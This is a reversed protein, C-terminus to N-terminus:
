RRIRKSAVLAISQKVLKRLVTLDVDALKKIYLCSKATKYKGLDKMLEPFKDAGGPLYLTLNDKRPSFGIIMWEGERGGSYEYRRLGFGVINSGWMKPAEKTVAQMIKVVAQCDERRVEDPIKDLFASVSDSTERTKPKAM